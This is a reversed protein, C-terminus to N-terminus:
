ASPPPPTGTTPSGPYGGPGSAPALDIPGNAQEHAELAAALREVDAATAPTSRDTREAYVAAGFDRLLGDAARKAQYGDLKAQGKQAADKAVASAVASAVAAQEKVKDLFGM